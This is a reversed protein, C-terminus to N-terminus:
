VCARHSVQLDVTESWRASVGASKAVSTKVKQTGSHHFVVQPDQLCSLGHCDAALWSHTLFSGVCALCALCLPASGQLHLCLCHTTALLSAHMTLWTYQM